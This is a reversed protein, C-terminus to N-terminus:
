TIFIETAPHKRWYLPLEACQLAMVYATAKNTVSINLNQKFIHGLVQLPSSERVWTLTDPPPFNRQYGPSERSIVIEDPYATNFKPLSVKIASHKTHPFSLIRSSIDQSNYILMATCFQRLGSLGSTQLLFDSKGEPV